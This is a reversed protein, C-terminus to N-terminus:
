GYVQQGANGLGAAISSFCVFYDLEPCMKRSLKDLYITTNIKPACVLNFSEVTLFFFRYYTCTYFFIKLCFNGTQNELIADKLVMALNFIGGVPGLENAEEILSAASNYTTCTNTSVLINVGSKKLRQISM